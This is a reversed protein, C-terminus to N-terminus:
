GAKVLIDITDLIQPTQERTKNHNPVWHYLGNGWSAMWLSSDRYDWVVREIGDANEGKPMMPLSYVEWNSDSNRVVVHNGFQTSILIRGDPCVTINHNIYTMVGNYDYDVKKPLSEIEK